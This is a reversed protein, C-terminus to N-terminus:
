ERLSYPLASFWAAIANKRGGKGLKDIWTGLAPKTPMIERQSNLFRERM